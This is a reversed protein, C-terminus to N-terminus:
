QKQCLIGKFTYSCRSIFAFDTYGFSTLIAILPMGEAFIKDSEIMQKFGTANCRYFVAGFPPM